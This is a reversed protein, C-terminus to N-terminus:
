IEETPPMYIDGTFVINSKGTIYLKDSNKWYVEIDGGRNHVTINNSTRWCSASAVAACASGTACCLTEGCSREWTRISIGSDTVACFEVNAKDKFLPHHEIIPGYKEVAIEEPNDCFVVCHPNGINIYVYAFHVDEAALQGHSIIRPRGICASINQVHGNQVQLLVNKNGSLTEVLLSTKDTKGSEYFLMAASRLANGCMEAESGNPNFVRMMFDARDSPELLIMGDGGIGYHRDSVFRAWKPRDSMEQDFLMIYVYDNGFSHMKTFLM